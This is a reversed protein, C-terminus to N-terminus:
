DAGRSLGRLKWSASRAPRQTRTGAGSLVTLAQTLWTTRRLRPKGTQLVPVSVSGVEPALLLSPRPTWVLRGAWHRAHVAWWRPAVGDTVTVRVRVSSQCEPRDATFRTGPSHRQEGNCPGERSQERTPAAGVPPDRSPGGEEQRQGEQCTVWWHGGLHADVFSLRRGARVDWWLTEGGGAATVQVRWDGSGRPMVM